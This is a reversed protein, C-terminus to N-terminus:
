RADLLAQTRPLLCCAGTTALLLLGERLNLLLHM